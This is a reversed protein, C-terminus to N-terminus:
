SIHRTMINEDQRKNKKDKKKKGKKGRSIEAAASQMDATSECM